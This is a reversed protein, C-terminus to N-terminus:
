PSDYEQKILHSNDIVLSLSFVIPLHLYIVSKKLINQDFAQFFINVLFIEEYSKEFSVSTAVLIFM